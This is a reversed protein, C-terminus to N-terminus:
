MINCSSSAKSILVAVKGNESNSLIDDHKGTEYDSCKPFCVKQPSLFQQPLKIPPSVTEMGCVEVQLSGESSAAMISNLQHLNAESVPGRVFSRKDRFCVVFQNPQSASLAINDVGTKGHKRLLLELKPYEDGLKCSSNEDPWLAFWTDKVGLSVHTPVRAPQQPNFLSEFSDPLRDWTVGGAPSSAFYSANPGLSVRTQPMDIATGAYTRLWRELRDYSAQRQSWRNYVVGRRSKPSNERSSIWKLQGNTAQYGFFWDLSPALAVCLPRYIDATPGLSTNATPWYSSSIRYQPSYFYFAGNAGFSFTLDSAILSAHYGEEPHHIFCPIYRGGSALSAKRLVCGQCVSTTLNTSANSSSM